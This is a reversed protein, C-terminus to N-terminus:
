RFYLKEQICINKVAKTKHIKLVKLNKVSSVSPWVIYVSFRTFNCFLKCDIIEKDKILKLDNWQFVYNHLVNM